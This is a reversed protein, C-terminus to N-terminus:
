WWFNWVQSIFFVYRSKWSAEPWSVQSILKLFQFFIPFIKYIINFKYLSIFNSIRLFNNKIQKCFKSSANVECFTPKYFMSWQIGHILKSLRWSSESSPVRNQQVGKRKNFKGIELSTNIFIIQLLYIKAIKWYVPFNGFTLGCFPNIEYFSSEVPILKKSTAFSIGTSAHGLSFTCLPSMQRGYRWKLMKHVNLKPRTNLPIDRFRKLSSWQNM